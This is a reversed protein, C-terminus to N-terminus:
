RDGPVSARYRYLGGSLLLKLLLGDQDFGNQVFVLGGHAFGCHHWLDRGSFLVIRADEDDSDRARGTVAGLWFVFTM